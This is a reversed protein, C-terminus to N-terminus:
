HEIFHSVIRQANNTTYDFNYQIMRTTDYYERKERNNIWTMLATTSTIIKGDSINEVNEYIGRNLRYEEMDPVYHAIPKHLLSFDFIASSYDTVLADAILMWENLSYESALMINHCEQLRHLDSTKMYPHGKFIIQISDKLQKSLQMFVDIFDVDSEQYAGTARYTPAVLIVVKDNMFPFKEDIIEEMHARATGDSFVDIRPPGYPFIREPSMNFAEAYYPIMRTGSVYVHTYNSHIPIINLYSTSPGFKTHVTSYGFKKFAGAAHWLQIVKLHKSPKILYIPLYYDEIILYAANSLFSIDKFLKTDMKNTTQVLHINMQPQQAQLEEYIHKLNGELIESRSLVFVAKNKDTKRIITSCAYIVRYTQKYMYLLLSKLKSQKGM